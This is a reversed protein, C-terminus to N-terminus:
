DTVAHDRFVEEICRSIAEVVPAVSEGPRVRRGIVAGAGDEDDITVLVVDHRACAEAALGEDWSRYTSGPQRDIYLFTEGRDSVVVVDQEAEIYVTELVETDCRLYVEGQGVVARADALLRHIRRVDDEEMPRGTMEQDQKLAPHGQSVSPDRSGTLFHRITDTPGRASGVPILPVRYHRETVCVIAHEDRYM